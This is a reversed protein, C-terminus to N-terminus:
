IKLNDVGIKYCDKWGKIRVIKSPRKKQEGEHIELRTAPYKM